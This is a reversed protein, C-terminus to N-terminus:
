AEPKREACIRNEQPMFQSLYEIYQAAITPVSFQAARAIRDETTSEPFDLAEVLAAVLADVDRPPVLRGYLGDALIERPGSPCDTAVVAVGCALAEILVNGLGERDSSLCFVDARSMLAYPNARWGLFDVESEIGLDRCLGMLDQKLPGDGLVLLKVPMQRGPRANLKALSRLLLPYNKQAVLRGASVIVPGAADDQLWEHGPAETALRTVRDFPIPNYITQVSRRNIYAFESVDEAVGNSVAVVGDLAPYIRRSLAKIQSLRILKRIPLGEALFAKSSTNHEVVVVKCIHGAIQNAWYAIFPAYGLAAVLIAPRRAKLHAALAAVRQWTFVPKRSALCSEIMAGMSGIAFGSEIVRRAPRDGPLLEHLRVSPSVIDSNEGKRSDVTLEAIHGQAQLEHCLDITLREAGGGSLDPLYFMLDLRDADSARRSERIDHSM